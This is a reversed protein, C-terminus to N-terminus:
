ARFDMIQISKGRRLPRTPRIMQYSTSQSAIFPELKVDIKWGYGTNESDHEVGPDGAKTWTAIYWPEQMQHDTKRMEVEGRLGKCKTEELASAAKVPDSSRTENIAKSLM